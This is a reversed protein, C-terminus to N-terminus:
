GCGSRQNVQSCEVGPIIAIYLPLPGIKSFIVKAIKDINMSM